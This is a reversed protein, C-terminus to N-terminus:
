IKLLLPTQQTTRYKDFITIQTTNPVTILNLVCTYDPSHTQDNNTQTHTQCFLTNSLSRVVPRQLLYFLLYPVIYIYTDVINGKSNIRRPGKSNIGEQARRCISGREDCERLRLSSLQSREGAGQPQSLM